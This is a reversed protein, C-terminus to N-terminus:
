RRSMIKISSSSMDAPQSCPGRAQRCKALKARQQIKRGFSLAELRTAAQTQAPQLRRVTANCRGGLRHDEGLVRRRM